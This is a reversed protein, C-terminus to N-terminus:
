AREWGNCLADCVGLPTCGAPELADVDRLQVSEGSQLPPCTSPGPPTAGWPYPRQDGAAQGAAWQWQSTIHAPATPRWGRRWGNTWSGCARGRLVM